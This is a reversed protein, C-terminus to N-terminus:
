NINIELLLIKNGDPDLIMMERGGWSAKYPPNIEIGQELLEKYTQELNDCRFVLNVIGEYPNWKNEDWICITPANELFGLQIGDYDGYGEFIIPIGLKVHYFDVLIKIDKSSINICV